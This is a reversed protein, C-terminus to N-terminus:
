GCWDALAEKLHREVRVTRQPRHDAGPRGKTLWSPRRSRSRFILVTASAAQGATREPLVRSARAAMGDFDVFGSHPVDVAKRYFRRAPISNIEDGYELARIAEATESSVRPALVVYLDPSELEALLQGRPIQMVPALQNALEEADTLISPSVGVRYDWEDVALVAGNHDYIVGREPSDTVAWDEIVVEKWEDGNIVQFVFLRLVIVGLALSMGIGVAWM